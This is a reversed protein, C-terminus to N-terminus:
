RRLLTRLFSGWEQRAGGIAGGATGGRFRTPITKEAYEGLPRFRQGFGAPGEIRPMRIALFQNIIDPIQPILIVAGLAIMGTLVDGHRGLYPPGWIVGRSPNIQAILVDVLFVILGVAPFVLLNSLVGKLWGEYIGRGSLTSWLIFLPSFILHILLLLYAKALTFIIRILFAVFAIILGLIIPILAVLVGPGLLFGLFGALIGGVAAGVGIGINATLVGRIADWGGGAGRGITFAVTEYFGANVYENFYRTADYNQLNAAGLGWILAGMFVYTLDILFGVIAYSFTVLLLGVVLRPLATQITMVAQPSVKTRFMISFGLVVAGIVFLVYVFNRVARWAALFPDLVSFGVGQAYAPRVPNLRKIVDSAYYVGSAPPISYLNAITDGLKQVAGGQQQLEAPCGSSPCGALMTILGGGIGILSQFDFSEKNYNSDGLGSQFQELTTDFNAASATPVVTVLLLYCTVLGFFIKPLKEM